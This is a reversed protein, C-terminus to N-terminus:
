KLPEESCGLKCAQVRNLECQGQVQLSGGVGAEQSNADSTQAVM